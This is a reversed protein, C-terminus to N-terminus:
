PAKVPEIVLVNAGNGAVRVKITVSGDAAIDQTSSGTQRLRSLEEVKKVAAAPLGKGAMIRKLTDNATDMVEYELSQLAVQVIVGAASVAEPGLRALKELGALQTARVDSGLDKLADDLAGTQVPTLAKGPPRDRLERGLRFYSNHDKDFRYEHVAVKQGKLGTLRLSVDFAADSKAETDMMAHSYLLVRVAQGDRTAFGSVVHSGVTQEPLVHYEPGMRSLLGLFHLIPMAVTVTRDAVGDGDDDVRIARVCDNGGGFNTNPWPWFTLISEGYAYRPDRAARRLQRRAVDACWTPFYGNGLYSDGYAPDHPMMWDPCSEHSNVHLKAYYDPDIELALERARALKDAMMKSSNYAHISVFDCPSGRGDHARCLSEVRKSRKGDLRKDAFAANLPLAGKVQQAKPSCHALFERLKLNTGFAGGLELGGIFVKASDYGRDEFARLVGDTTYDYFKQLEDWDSRWFLKGLDPENFVSWPFTLAAAGYRDIIHGTIARTVDHLEAYDKATTWDRGDISLDGAADAFNPLLRRGFRKHAIDWEADLRGWYYAPTGCPKFKRLYCGGPPFLGPAAPNEKKPLPGAYAVRWGGEPATLGSVLVTRAADDAKVVKARGDHVGDAILVEDGAHYDASVPRDSPIGYQEHGFFDEVRLLSGDAHPDIAAIRRTERERVINPQNSSFAQPRYEMGTMWFDRQLSWAKPATKRVEAMLEYTPIRNAASTCFAPSCFGNFFGGQWSVAPGDLALQFDLPHPKPEAETTFTWTGDKAPLAGGDRSRATVRIAYKTAPRLKRAPAPDAYVGLSAGKDQSKGPLFKGAYGDAFQKNPRLVAVAEGGEPQLEITVSEPLVVDTSGKEGAGLEVYVSVQLPVHEQGIAPRPYGYPDYPKKLLKVEAARAAAACGGMLAIALLDRVWDRHFM